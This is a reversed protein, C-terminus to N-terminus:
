PNTKAKKDRKDAIAVTVINGAANTVALLGGFLAEAFIAIAIVKSTHLYSIIVLLGILISGPQNPAGLSLFFVVTGIIIVDYWGITEGMTVMFLIAILMIIFCNGDLNVRSLIPLSRNLQKRDMGFQTVCYRTNFPIAEITSNITLNEKLLPILKKAFPVIKIGAIKLRASYFLVMAIMAVPMTLVMGLLFIDM